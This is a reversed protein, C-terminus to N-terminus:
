RKQLDMSPTIRALANLKRNAKQCITTIHKEFKLKNDVTVGLLKRSHSNYIITESIQFNFAETTSLLLDCKDLNAKMENQAFWIFVKEATTKLESVVEEADNGILYCTTDDAYNTFYKSKTSLFLSFLFINFLDKHFELYLKKGNAIPSVM